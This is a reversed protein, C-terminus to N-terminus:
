RRTQTGVLTSGLSARCARRARRRRPLRTACSPSLSRPLAAQIEDLETLVGDLSLKAPATFSACGVALLRPVKVPQPPPPPPPPSQQSQQSQQLQLQTMVVDMQAVAAADMGVRYFDKLTNFQSALDSDLELFTARGKVKLGHRLLGIWRKREIDAVALLVDDLLRRLEDMRGAVSKRGDENMRLVNPEMLQLLELIDATRGAISLVVKIAKKARKVIGLIERAAKCVTPLLPLSTIEGLRLLEDAVTLGTDCKDLWRDKSTLRQLSM